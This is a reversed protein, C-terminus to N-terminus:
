KMSSFARRAYAGADKKQQRLQAVESKKLRDSVLSTGPKKQPLRAQSSASSSASKM